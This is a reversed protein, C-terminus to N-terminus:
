DNALESNSVTVACSLQELPMRHGLEKSSKMSLIELDSSKNGM